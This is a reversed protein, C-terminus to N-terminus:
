QGCYKNMLRSFYTSSENDLDTHTIPIAKKNIKKAQKNKEDIAKNIAEVDKGTPLQNAKQEDATLAYYGAEAFDIHSGEGARHILEHIADTVYKSAITSPRLGISRNGKGYYALGEVGPNKKLDEETIEVFDGKNEKLDYILQEFTKKIKLKKRVKDLFNRCRGNNADLREDIKKDLDAPIPVFKQLGDRGFEASIVGTDTVDISHQPDDKVEVYEPPLIIEEDDDDGGTKKATARTAYTM